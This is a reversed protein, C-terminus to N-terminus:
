SCTANSSASRRCSTASRTSRSDVILHRKLDSFLPILTEGKDNKPLARAWAYQSLDIAVEKKVEGARLTGAM